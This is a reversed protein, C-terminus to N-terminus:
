STCQLSRFFQDFVCVCVCVWVCVCLGWVCVCLGLSGLGGWGGGFGGEAGRSVSGASGKITEVSKLTSQLGSVQGVARDRELRALMKEKMAVEYKSKLQQLTPEFQAYHRKLRKIDDILRNKEQVVRKHHIRHYDREKRLKVYTEKAKSNM